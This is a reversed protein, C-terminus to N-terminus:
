PPSCGTKCWGDLMARAVMRHFPLILRLYNRGLLNHTQVLTTLTAAGDRLDCVIRFDLHHDNFGIVVQDPASSIVPFAQGAARRLGFPAALADRLAMLRGVWRPSASFMGDMIQSATLANGDPLTVRFADAFDHGPLIAGTASEVPVEVAKGRPSIATRRITM